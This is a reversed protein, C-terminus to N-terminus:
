EDDHNMTNRCVKQHNQVHDKAQASDVHHTNLFPHPYCQKVYTMFVVCFVNSCDRLVWMEM